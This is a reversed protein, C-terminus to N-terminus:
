IKLIKINLIILIKGKILFMIKKRKIKFCLNYILNVIFFECKNDCYLWYGIVLLNWFLNCNIM